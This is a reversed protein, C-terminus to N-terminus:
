RGLPLNIHLVPTVPKVKFLNGGLHIRLWQKGAAQQPVTDSLVSRCRMFIFSIRAPPRAPPHRAGRHLLPERLRRGLHAWALWSVLPALFGDKGLDAIFDKVTRYSCYVVIGLACLVMPEM